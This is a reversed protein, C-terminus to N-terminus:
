IKWKVNEKKNNQKALTNNLYGIDICPYNFLRRVHMTEEYVPSKIDWLIVTPRFGRLHEVNRWYGEDRNLVRVSAFYEQEFHDTFVVIEHGLAQLEYGLLNVLTTKGIQRDSTGIPFTAGMEICKNFWKYHIM